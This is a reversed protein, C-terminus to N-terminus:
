AQAVLGHKAINIVKAQTFEALGDEGMEVGIGSQKAGGMPIDYPLDLHQNVWITGSDLKQAVEYAAELNNGWVTGALGYTTANARAIADNLDTYKMVPLVPGFQEEQVLRSDEPIDRVITPRVFYGKRDAVDGGAVIKGKQRAEEIYELVKDYQAKNQIPGLQTGQKLGDDVVTLEALKGLEECMADYQSEHVYVRKVAMCIQGSNLTAGAFVKAAVEKTDSDQLVIAADNGGLELTMRKLTGAGSQMVKKGTATSGTFSVKAVDPHETLAAGLDNADGIINVVGDPVIGVCLEGFLMATLPTTPAPKAVVTNGVSIAPAIKSCLMIMPFNWPMIAAVVGLPAHHQVIRVNEDERLLKTPTDRGAFYRLMGLAINVEFMAFDLPKGQEETLLRAFEGHRAELADALKNLVVGREATTKAAWAPFAAKAAAVAENLQAASARPCLGLVEETAPNVVELTSAGAVLRGNILLKYDSM